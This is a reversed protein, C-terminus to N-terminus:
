KKNFSRVVSVILALNFQSVWSKFSAPPPVNASDFAQLLHGEELIEDILDMTCYVASDPDVEARSALLQLRTEYIRPLPIYSTILEMVPAPMTWTLLLAQKSQCAQQLTPDKMNEAIQHISTCIDNNSLKLLAREAQLLNWTRVMLFNRVARSDLQMFRIQAQDTLIDEIESLERRNATDLATRGKNDRINLEAGAAVLLKAVELHQRKVALMLSTSNQNTVSDVDANADILMKVIRAHGRQSSLMLASMREDNRRNVECEHELLLKVVDEHGEQCARMLATTNKYNSLEIAAGHNILEQVVELKGFHCAQILATSGRASVANTDAGIYSNSICM